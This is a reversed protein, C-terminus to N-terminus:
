LKATTWSSGTCLSVLSCILCSTILFFKPNILEIGYYVMAPVVGSIIWSSTLGGIILLILIPSMASYISMRVGNFIDDTSIKQKKAILFAILSSVLLAIQNAGSM